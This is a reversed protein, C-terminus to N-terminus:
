SILLLCDILSFDIKGDAPSESRRTHRKRDSREKSRSRRRDLDEKGIDWERM